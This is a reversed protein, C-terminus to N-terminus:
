KGGGCDTLARAAGDLMLNVAFQFAYETGAPRANAILHQLATLRGAGDGKLALDVADRQASEGERREAAIDNAFGSGLVGAMRLIQAAAGEDFGAALLSRLATEAPGLAAWSAGGGDLQVHTGFQQAALSADRVITCFARTAERWGAFEDLEARALAAGFADQAVLQLLEERDSVHYHVTKRDVGLEDAVAQMTLRTPDLKRAAEVVKARSIRPPRGRGRQAAQPASM